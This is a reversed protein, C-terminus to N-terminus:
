GSPMASVTLHGRPGRGQWDGVSFGQGTALRVRAIHQGLVPFRRATEAAAKFTTYMSIGENIRPTVAAPTYDRPPLGLEARSRFGDVFGSSAQEPTKVIRYLELAEGEAIEREQLPM